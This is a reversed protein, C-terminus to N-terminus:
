LRNILSAAYGAGFGNDINVVTVGAACSNLMGLLAALGQLSAGYGVSTPVAIIPRAVLGGVVSPLAGEMGAVVVLASASMLKEKQGLLRHLGAVGVDYMHETLNGMMRATVLAEEAVPIDSTGASIVLITGRGVIQIERQIFTMTRARPNHEMRPHDVLVRHAKEEDVRTVLVNAGVAAIREVISSIQSADKGEGMVVEPFGQRLSRHHDVTADELIEYPLVKLRDLAADIDMTGHQVATLLERLIEPTM